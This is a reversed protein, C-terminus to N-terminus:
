FQKKFSNPKLESNKRDIWYSSTDKSQKLNLPDRGRLRSFFAFPTFLGYFILGLVLPTVVLGMLHGLRFWALNFPRLLAPKYWGILGLIFALGFYIATLKTDFAKYLSYIGLITFVSVVLYGFHKDSPINKDTSSEKKLSTKM